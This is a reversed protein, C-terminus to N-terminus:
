FNIDYKKILTEFPVNLSIAIRKIIARATGISIEKKRPITVVDKWRKFQQHSGVQHDCIFWADGAIKIALKYTLPM